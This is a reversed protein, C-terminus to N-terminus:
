TATAGQLDETVLNALRAAGVINLIDTAAATDGVAIKEAAEIWPTRIRFKAILDLLESQRDLRAFAWALLPWAFSTFVGRGTPLFDLWMTVASAAQDLANLRAFVYACIASADCSGFEVGGERTCLGITLEADRRAAEPDDALALLARVAVTEEEGQTMEADITRPATQVIQRATDWDGTVLELAAREQELVHVYTALGMDRARSLGEESVHAADDLRGLAIFDPLISVTALVSVSSRLRRAMELCEEIEAIGAPDDLALHQDGLTMMGRTVLEEDGLKHAMEVGELIYPLCTADGRESAIRGVALSVWAKVSSPPETEITSHAHKARHLAEDSRNHNVLWAAVYAEAEAAQLKNGLRYFTDRASDLEPPLADETFFRAKGLALLTVARTSDDQTTALTLAAAYHTVATTYAGLAMARDGAARRSDGARRGLAEDIDGTQQKLQFAAQLHHALLEAKDEREATAREIWGAVSLHYRARDARPIQHYAVDQILAHTFTLEIEGPVRSRRSRRVLQRQELVHIADDMEIPTFHEAEAAAGTWWVRGIVSALQALHKERTPLADLRAAILGHISTPLTSLAGTRDDNDGLTPDRLMRVYERVFLPNGEAQSIVQLRQQVAVADGGLFEVILQETDTTGLPPLNLVTSNVRGGGWTTRRQLFEPRATAVILLPVATLRDAVLEIFDVLADDAWHLDEFVLVTPQHDAMAEIFRRWAGFSQGRDGSGEAPSEAGLLAALRETIWDREAPDAVLAEVCRELKEESIAGSDVESIGAAAKVIEGLAWFAVGEGYALSRGQRWTVEDAVSEVHRRLEIVLRTKGIGPVGVLTVLQASEDERMRAFANALAGVEYGRGVLSVVSDDGDALGPEFGTALWVSVPNGKGRVVVQQPGEFRVVAATSARTAADVLVGGPPALAQLRSATNVVDGSVHAEGRNSAPNLRALVEGNTIGVRVELSLTPDQERLEAAGEVIALGARVAREPDDERATPAGFVAMVADGIFKEVSGGFWEIRDRAMRYYRDLLQDVDEPDASASAAAFEVLDCFLITVVKRERKSLGVQPQSSGGAEAAPDASPAAAPTPKATAPTLASDQQLIRRELEVLAPSPDIGLEEVLAERAQQYAALADAQRGARYLALMHHARLRERLPHDRVLGELEGTLEGGRGMRLEADIRNELAVLRLEELQRLPAAAWEEYTFEALAPGRWLALGEVLVARAQEADGTELLRRGEGVLREFRVVDVRERSLELLYGPRRTVLVDPGVQKRLQSIYVQLTAVASPPPNGAWLRDVLVDTSVVRGAELALMALLARQKPAVVPLPTGDRRVELPGLVGITLEGVMRSRRAQGSRQRFDLWAGEGGPKLRRLAHRLGRELGRNSAGWVPIACRSGVGSPASMVRMVVWWRMARRASSATVAILKAAVTPPLLQFYGDVEVRFSVLHGADGRVADNSEGQKRNRRDAKGGGDAAGVPV